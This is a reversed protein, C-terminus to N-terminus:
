RVFINIQRLPSRSEGQAPVTVHISAKSGSKQLSSLELKLGHFTDFTAVSFNSESESSIYNRPYSVILM